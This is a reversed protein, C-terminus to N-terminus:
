LKLRELYKKYFVNKKTFYKLIQFNWFPPFTKFISKDVDNDVPTRYWRSKFQILSVINKGRAIGTIRLQRILQGITKLKKANAWLGLM